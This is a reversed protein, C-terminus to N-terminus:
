MNGSDWVTIQRKPCRPTIGHNNMWEETAKPSFLQKSRRFDDIATQLEEDSFTIESKALTEKILCAEILWRTLHIDEWFMDLLVIADEISIITQNVRVLNSDQWRQAGRL